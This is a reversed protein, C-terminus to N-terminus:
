KTALKPFDDEMYELYDEITSLNIKWRRATSNYKANATRTQAYSLKQRNKEAAKM